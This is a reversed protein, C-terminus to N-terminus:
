RYYSAAFGLVERARPNVPYLQGKYMSKLNYLVMYGVKGPIRSAEIVAIGQPRSFVEVGDGTPPRILAL